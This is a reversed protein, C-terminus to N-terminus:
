GELTNGASAVWVAAVSRPIYQWAWVLPLANCAIEPRSMTYERYPGGARPVQERM